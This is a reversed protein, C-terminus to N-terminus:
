AGTELKKTPRLVVAMILGVVGVVGCVLFAVQYSGTLDFIYGMVVPGVAAGATFGIHVVGYILGHSRLGFLGAVLPSEVAGTGGMAFGFLAAFLYFMWLERAPVLWFFAAAILIFGIIFVQRNGIRDGLGGLVYTGLISIGGMAALVNAASVASVGLEIAHPVIHVTVGFVGFGFCFFMVLSVWFQTTGAAEKLSFAGAESALGQQKVENEGYPLLGMKTPDRKMLQAALVMVILVVGGLIIYSLRWDYAAILRSAVPSGILQGIGVGAVVIGTMLSRRRVFWRAVTSLQPVWVGSLGIGVIVGYFLYIQWLANVQSMLLFGLGVLFGCLTMVIRPGFRDNLGGVVIGMVGYIIMSLSFAGSTAASSWGFEAQLPKFFVGFANYVGWSAVMVFFAVIVVIYGYFIRPETKRLQYDEKSTV